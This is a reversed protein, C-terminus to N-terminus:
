AAERAALYADIAFDTNTQERGDNFDAWADDVWLDIQWDLFTEPGIAIWKASGPMHMQELMLGGEDDVTYTIDVPVGVWDAEFRFLSPQHTGINAVARKEEATVLM